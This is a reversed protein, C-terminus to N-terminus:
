YERSEAKMVVRKGVSLVVLSLAKLEVLMVAMM